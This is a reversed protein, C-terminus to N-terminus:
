LGVMTIITEEALVPIGYKRAKVAKASLSYPDGAIILKTTKTTSPKPIFGRRSLLTEWDEKEYHAFDEGTVVFIDGPAFSFYNNLKEATPQIHHSQSLTEQILHEVRHDKVGGFAAAVSIQNATYTENNWVGNNELLNKCILMFVYEENLDIVHGKTLSLGAITEEILAKEWSTYRNNLLATHMTRLYTNISSEPLEVTIDHLNLICESLDAPTSLIQQIDTRTRWASLDNSMPSSSFDSPSCNVNCQYNNIMSILLNATAIADAMATHADLLPINFHNCLTGLKYNSARFPLSKALRLTDLGIGFNPSINERTYEVELMNIDFEVNHGIIVRDHLLAALSPLIDRFSAGHSAILGDIGHLSVLGLDREPNLVTEYYGTVNLNPDLLVVAIEVVRDNGRINLGTTETDIVAYGLM